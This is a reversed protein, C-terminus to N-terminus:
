RGMSLAHRWLPPSPQKQSSFANRGPFPNALASTNALCLSSSIHPVDLSLTILSELRNVGFLEVGPDRMCVRCQRPEPDLKCHRFSSSTLMASAPSTCCTPGIALHSACLPCLCWWKRSCHFCGVDQRCPLWEGTHTMKLSNRSGKLTMAQRACNKSQTNCCSWPLFRVDTSRKDTM